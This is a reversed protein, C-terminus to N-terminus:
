AARGTLRAAFPTFGGHEEVLEAARTTLTAILLEVDAIAQEDPPPNPSRMHTTHQGVSRREPAALHDAGTRAVGGPYAKSTWTGVVPYRFSDLKENTPPCCGMAKRSSRM